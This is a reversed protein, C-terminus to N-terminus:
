KVAKSNHNLQLTYTNVTIDKVTQNNFIRNNATFTLNLKSKTQHYDDCNNLIAFRNEEM